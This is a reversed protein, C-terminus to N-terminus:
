NLGGYCHFSVIIIKAVVYHMHFAKAISVLAIFIKIFGTWPSLPSLTQVYMGLGSKICIYGCTPWGVTPVMGLIALLTPGSIM